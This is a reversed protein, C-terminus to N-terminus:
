QDLVRLRSRSGVPNEVSLTQAYIRELILEWVGIRADRADFAFQRKNLNIWSKVAMVNETFNATKPQFHVTAHFECNETFQLVNLKM